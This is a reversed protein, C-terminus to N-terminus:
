ASKTQSLIIQMFENGYKKLKSEGVGQLQLFQSENQPKTRAMEILTKDHFIVYPPLNERKAIELRKQRLTQFLGENEPDKDMLEKTINKKQSKKSVSPPDTRFKVQRKGKLVEKSLPTLILSGYGDLNSELFGASILQRYISFWQASNKSKGIGYVSLKDHGFNVIRENTASTLVDVLYAAGFRQGTRFVASLAMQAAETGDWSDVPSLCTDCAGCKQPPNEGFYRLLVARRCETTECFGLLSNLRRQELFKIDEPADSRQIMQKVLIVDGMGYIMWAVSPLGDRGARGTEQYYSELSKPLDVHCVFRVNPKDIGMGFAITAAIIVGEEKIFIDQHKSRLVPDMGAHYAYANYGNDKLLAAIQETKKRSLCYIIGSETEPRSKLFSLIQLNANQKLNVHYEINPRDFGSIFLKANQLALNQIIDKRTPDDATATVAIRPVDPFLDHLFNLEGYEKRFDHGWQSVCHAEDIAFLSIDIQQIFDKFEESLLREPSVYLIDIESNKIEQRIRYDDERSLSSNLFEARIGATKLGEVQDRMLAILPSIVIGTGKRVIAPIQYCISKGAGTPMLVLADGGNIIHNIIDAQKDRFSDYGYYKKLLDLNKSSQEIISNSSKM